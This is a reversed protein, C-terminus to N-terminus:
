RFSSQASEARRRRRVAAAGLALGAALVGYTSPEPVASFQGTFASQGPTPNLDLQQLTLSNATSTFELWGYRVDAGDTHSFGVYGSAGGAPYQAVKSLSSAPGVEVGAALVLATIQFRSAQAVSAVMGPNNVPMMLFMNFGSSPSSFYLSTTEGGRTVFGGLPSWEVVLYSDASTLTVPGAFPTTQALAAVPLLALVALRM